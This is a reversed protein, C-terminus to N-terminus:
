HRHGGGGGGGHGGSSGGHSGGFGGRSGGFGGDSGRFGGGGFGGNSGHFAGGFGGSGGRFGGGFSGGGRFNAGNSGDHFAGGFGGSGGRFVHGSSGYGGGFGRGGSYGGGFGHGFAGGFGRAHGGPGVFGRFSRGGWYGRGIYGYVPEDFFGIAFPAPYDGCFGIYAGWGGFRHGGFVIDLGFTPGFLGVGFPEDCYYGGYCYMDPYWGINCYDDWSPACGLFVPTAPQFDQTFPYWRAGDVTANELYGGEPVYLVPSTGTNVFYMSDNQSVAFKMVYLNDNKYKVVITEGVTDFLQYGGKDFVARQIPVQQNVPVEQWNFVTSASPTGTTDDVPPADDSTVPPAMATGDDDCYAAMPLATLCGVGFLMMAGFAGLKKGAGQLHNTKM